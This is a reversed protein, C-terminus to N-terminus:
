ITNRIEIYMTHPLRSMFSKDVGLIQLDGKVVLLFQHLEKKLCLQISKFSGNDYTELIRLPRTGRRQNM